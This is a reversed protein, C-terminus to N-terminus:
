PSRETVTAHSGEPDNEPTSIQSGEPASTILSAQMERRGKRTMYWPRDGGMYELQMIWLLNRAGQVDRDRRKGDTPDCTTCLRLRRSTTTKVEGTKKDRRSVPAPCTLHGCACCCMTSGYEPVNLAEVKREPLKELYKKEREANRNKSVDQFRRTSRFIAKDLSKTPASLSGRGTSCFSGDGIGIVLGRGAPQGHMARTLLGFTARDLSARKLRFMMMRWLAYDAPEVFEAGLVNQFSREVTLTADWVEPDCNRLGGARSM